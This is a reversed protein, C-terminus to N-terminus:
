RVNSHSPYKNSVVALCWSRPRATQTLYFFSVPAYQPYPNQPDSALGASTSDGTTSGGTAYQHRQHRTQQNSGAPAASDTMSIGTQNSNTSMTTNISQIPQASRQQRAESNEQRSGAVVPASVRQAEAGFLSTPRVAFRKSVAAGEDGTEARVSCAPRNISNDAVQKPRKRNPSAPQEPGASQGVPEM